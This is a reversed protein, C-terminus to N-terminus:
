CIAQNMLRLRDKVLGSPAAADPWLSVEFAALINNSSPPLANSAASPAM